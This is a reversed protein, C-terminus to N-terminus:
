NDLIAPVMIRTGKISANEHCVKPEVTIYDTWNMTWSGPVTTQRDWVALQM